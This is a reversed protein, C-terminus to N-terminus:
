SVEGPMTADFLLPQRGLLTRDYGAQWPYLGHADPWICELTPFRDRFLPSHTDSYFDMGRGMFAPYWKPDVKRFICNYNELVADSEMGDELVRGAEIEGVITHLMQNLKEHPLGFIILEPHHYTAYVGITYAWNPRDRSGVDIIHWGFKKVDEHIRREIDDM